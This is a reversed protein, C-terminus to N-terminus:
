EASQRLQLTESREIQVQVRDFGPVATSFDQVRRLEFEIASDEANIDLGEDALEELDLQWEGRDALRCVVQSQPSSGGAETHAPTLRAHLYLRSQDQAKAPSWAIDYWTSEEEGQDSDSPYLEFNLKAPLPASLRSGPLQALGQWGLALAAQDPSTTLEQEGRYQVGSAYPLVGPALHLPVEFRQEGLQIEFRGLDLLEIERTGQAEAGSLEPARQVSGDVGICDGVQLGTWVPETIGAFAWVLREQVGRFAAFDGRVKLALPQQAAVEANAETSPRPEAVKAEQKAEQALLSEQLAKPSVPDVLNTGTSAEERERRHEPSPAAAESRLAIKVQAVRQAPAPEPQSLEFPNTEAAPAPPSEVEACASLAFLAGLSLVFRSAKKLQLGLAAGSGTDVHLRARQHSLSAM